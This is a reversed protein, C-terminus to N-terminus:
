WLTGGVHPDWLSRGLTAYHDRERAERARIARDYQRTDAIVELHYGLVEPIERCCDCEDAWSGCRICPMDDTM